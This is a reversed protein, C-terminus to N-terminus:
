DQDHVILDPSRVTVNLFAWRPIVTGGPISLPYRVTREDLSLVIPSDRLSM